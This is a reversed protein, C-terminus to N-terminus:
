NLFLCIKESRKADQVSLILQNSSFLDGSTSDTALPTCMYTPTDSKLRNKNIPPFHKCSVNSYHAPFVPPIM